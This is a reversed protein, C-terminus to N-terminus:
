ESDDHFEDSRGGLWGGCANPGSGVWRIRLENDHLMYTGTCPLRRSTIGYEVQEHDLFVNWSGRRKVFRMYTGERIGCLTQCQEPPPHVWGWRFRSPSTSYLMARALEQQHERFLLSWTGGKRTCALRAMLAVKRHEIFSNNPDDLDGLYKAVIKAFDCDILFDGNKM